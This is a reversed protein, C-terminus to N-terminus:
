RELWKQHSASLVLHQELCLGEERSDRVFSSVWASLRGGVRSYVSKGKDTARPPEVIIAAQESM